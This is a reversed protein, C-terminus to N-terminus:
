RPVAVGRREDGRREDSRREESRREESRREESRREESRPAARNPAAREGEPRGQASPQRDHREHRDQAFAPVAALTTAVAAATMLTSSRKMASRMVTQLELASGVLIACNGLLSASLEVATRMYDPTHGRGHNAEDAARR